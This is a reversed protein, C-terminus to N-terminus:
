SQVRLEKGLFVVVHSPIIERVQTALNGPMAMMTFVPRLRQRRASTAVVSLRSERFRIHGTGALVVQPHRASSTRDSALATLPGVAKRYATELSKLAPLRCALASNSTTAIAESSSRLYPSSSSAIVTNCQRGTGLIRGMHILGHIVM